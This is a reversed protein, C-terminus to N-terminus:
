GERMFYREFDTKRNIIGYKEFIYFTGDYNKHANKNNKQGPKIWKGVSQFISFEM